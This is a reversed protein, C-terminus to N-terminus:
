AANQKDGNNDQNQNNNMDKVMPFLTLGAATAAKNFADIDALVEDPDGGNERIVDQPSKILGRVAELNAQVDARPDVWQWRRPQWIAADFKDFKSFPLNSLGSMLFMALWRSYVIDIFNEILFQQDIKWGDRESLAGSRMSSFNVNELDNAFDNYAVGLSSAISRMITKIFTAFNGNPHTPTFQKFDYGKPAITFQGPAIDTTPKVSDGGKGDPDFKGNGGATPVWIGMQAAAVRAGILESERYGQSMNIDLIAACGTPFGRVQGAFERRFVHIIQEAPIRIWQNVYQQDENIKNKYWYAVPREDANLEIGMVIKNGGQVMPQLNKDMDIDFSDILKLSFNYPNNAGEIVQVFAEGDIAFTHDVLDCFDRFSQQGDATCWQNKKKGWRLFNSEIISNAVKDPTGDPNKSKVQLGFGVDGIINRSRMNLWKRYDSNNKALDRSRERMKPLHRKLDANATITQTIWDTNYRTSTAALFQRKSSKFPWM